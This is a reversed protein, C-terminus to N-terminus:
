IVAPRSLNRAIERLRREVAEITEPLTSTGATLGVTQFGSFWCAQLDAASQIHFTKRGQRRCYEVLRRTNNSNRGGVVVVAEVQRVLRRVATQRDKTPQCITDVFRIEAQPNQEAIARRLQDADCVPLTTQCLIGLKAHPFTRVQDVAPIVEYRDLDEVIGQVEVHGPRGLVLIYYGEEALRQAAQHARNVLPCTTDILEKGAHQLRRREHESIGHATIMVRPTDPLATRDEERTMAFGRQELQALLTENHALEGHITVTTPESIQEALQLADRVGFCIGMADAKIIRM